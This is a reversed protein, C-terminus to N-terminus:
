EEEDPPSPPTNANGILQNVVETLKKIQETLTEIKEILIPNTSDNMPTAM